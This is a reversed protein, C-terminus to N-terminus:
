YFNKIHQINWCIDSRKIFFADMRTEDFTIDKEEIFNDATKQIRKIKKQDITSILDQFTERSRTKVEAFVLVDSDMFIIDIEGGKRRYNTALVFYGSEILFDKVIEEGTKGLIKSNPTQNMQANM